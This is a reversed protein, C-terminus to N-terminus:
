GAAGLQRARAELRGLVKPMREALAHPPLPGPRRRATVAQLSAGLLGAQQAPVGAALLTACIGGLVDGSGAQATWAPGPVAVGVPGPGPGAVLQSAGKLLVTAGTREAGERVARVPDEEVWVRDRELLRALEGAHPTLLWTKPVRDPLFRLGDADVLAPLGTDLAAAVVDAGDPRQGWGSGLLHAQVRGPSFVVAPMLGRILEAPRSAGLFRVMGAGAHLAGFTSLVGAGPYEDSGSDVGVVGRAYKDSAASPYPWARALDDEELGHLWGEGGGGGTLDLGIDVLDVTGCRGRAPQLLHCPKHVGFTVTRTARFTVGSAAGSDADVGSPLDVAVVPWGADQVAAALRAVPEPLGPRGGIGLVGDVVLTVPGALQGDEPLEEYRGGAALLAALGAPHPQGLCGIARVAVGRRVLRAGAFLADGGNNGPGVLLTVATGYLRGALHRLEAAVVAALGAAARQMLADDAVELMTRRELERVVDATAATIM